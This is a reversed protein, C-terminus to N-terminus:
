GPVAGSAAVSSKRPRRRWLKLLEIGSVPALGLGLAVAGDLVTLPGLHFLERVPAVAVLAVQLLVSLGVVALLPKNTFAGVEWFTRTSSRSGLARFVQCFVVVCFVLARATDEGRTGLAWVFAGFALAAEVTGRGVIRRWEPRGLMPEDPRRPRRRMVTSGPADLVLALAPFGDTVLNIWLLQLPLLPAPLGALSAVLMVALESTNGALLYVLAKRINDFIGRGERVAAVISAFNDDTLVIDSAERTVETGGKGMCIGIDAERLAPADNVGDGTMAVVGGEAALRRVVTLKDEPSARAYVRGEPSQGPELIGLELAIAQATRPHDGTIMVTEIGAAKAAAVAAIAEERPPDALGLLGVLTLHAEAPGQGLAVALVRLGKSAMLDAEARAAATDADCLPFVSEPAGKVHLTGGERLVSMRKRESDFPLESLRPHRRELDARLVGHGAAARLIAVETTDGVGSKGDAALEADCCAAAAELLARPEAGWTTRVTMEGTTLTGTKDTCIVTACGLTEVAPLRRVLVHRSAMRRVGIALAITVIAPLGEPVAAVALSVGSILVDLWPTGRWLGVAAVVVVVGLCIYLLLRSVAALRRQLPTERDEATALLGAIRGLETKMGTAEVEALAAGKVVATGMFVHDHREALPATASVADPSKEVQASEGTLPAENTALAHAELVHADAAVLDGAELELLDGPVVEAAPVLVAGGDRRVRARPATMARLAQMAREARYEQLVGVVANLVVIAGIAVADAVERLVGSVVCAGLLLLVVPSKLQELLLAPWTVSEAQTLANPGHQALRAKAEVQTLGSRTTM